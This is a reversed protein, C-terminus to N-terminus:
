KERGVRFGRLRGGSREFVSRSPMPKACLRGGKTDPSRMSRQRAKTLSVVLDSGLPNAKSRRHLAREMTHKTVLRVFRPCSRGSWELLDTTQKETVKMQGGHALWKDPECKRFLRSDPKKKLCRGQNPANRCQERGHGFTLPAFIALLLILGHRQCWVGSSSCSSVQRARSSTM